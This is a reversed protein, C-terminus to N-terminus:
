LVQKYINRIDDLSLKRMNNNLLRTVKSGSEVLFDLDKEPVGFEKLSSPIETFKVIDAIREIIYDAKEDVSASIMQPNITDCLIAFREACAPKNFRMVPVFMIANSVGHAIHYKGGLPYSLAHVATTGSSTIAVGAYFAGLMMDTKAEMDGADAYARKLASFILKAAAIAYTDSFPNAKNSTFCEVCHALADVGTAAIIKKPLKAILDPDLVVYDPILADNVIGVKLEEEPVLVISNCTAESGTGCTTPLMVTKMCKKALTPDKVLEHVTYSAGKLVAALKAADMVSGGGIAILLDGNAEEVKKMMNDVDYVSPESALNDIITYAVGCKTLLALTSDCLGAGRVGPDTFLLVKKAQEKSLINSIQQTSGAGGYVCAPLKMQFDPM